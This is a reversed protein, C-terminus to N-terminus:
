STCSIHLWENALKSFQDDGFYAILGRKVLERSAVMHLFHIESAQDPSADAPRLVKGNELNLTYLLRMKHLSRVRKAVRPPCALRMAACVTEEVDRPFTLWSIKAGDSSEMGVRFDQDEQSASTELATTIPM